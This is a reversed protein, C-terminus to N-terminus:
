VGGWALFTSLATLGCAFGTTFRLWNNSTRLGHMQSLGDAALVITSILFVAPVAHRWPVLLISLAVGSTLGTCRSCLHFQRGRLHFSREPLRHCGWARHTWAGDIFVRTLMRESLSRFATSGFPM